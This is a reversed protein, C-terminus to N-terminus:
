SRSAKGDFRVNVEHAAFTKHGGKQVIRMAFFHSFWM